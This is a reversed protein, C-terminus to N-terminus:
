NTSEVYGSAKMRKELDKSFKVAEKDLGEYLGKLFKDDFVVSNMMLVCRINEILESRSM